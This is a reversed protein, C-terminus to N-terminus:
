SEQQRTWVLSTSNEYTFRNVHTTPQAENQKLKEWVLICPFKSCKKEIRFHSTKQSKCIRLSARRRKTKKGGEYMGRKKKEDNEVELEEPTHSNRWELEIHETRRLFYEFALAIERAKRPNRKDQEWVNIKDVVIFCSDKERKNEQLCRKCAEKM